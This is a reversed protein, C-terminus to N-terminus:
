ESADRSTRAVVRDRAQQPTCGPPMGPSLYEVVDELELDSALCALERRRAADDGLAGERDLLHIMLLQRSWMAAEAPTARLVSSSIVDPRLDYVRFADEGARLRRVVDDARGSAAAEALNAPSPGAFLRAGGREAAAVGLGCVLALAPPVALVATLVPWTASV